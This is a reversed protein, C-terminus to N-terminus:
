RRRDALHVGDQVRDRIPDHVCTLKVPPSTINGRGKPAGKPLPNPHPPSPNIIADLAAREDFVFCKGRFHADGCQEFYRLIGGDLQYVERFGERKLYLAAKECRIGGTCFTVIPRDKLAPDLNRAARAFGRFSRLDLHLASEFSGIEVEFANRTDLLTLPHKEDLWRKLERPALRPAPHDAPRLDPLGLPIIERKVKVLMKGFPQFDSESQKYELDALRADV